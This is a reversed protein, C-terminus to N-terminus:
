IVNKRTGDFQTGDFHTASRPKSVYFIPHGPIKQGIGKVAKFAASFYRASYYNGTEEDLSDFDFDLIKQWLEQNM